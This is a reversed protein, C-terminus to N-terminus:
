SSTTLFFRWIFVEGIRTDAYEELWRARARMVPDNPYLSPEPYREELYECIVTSDPIALEGDILVPIRRVPSVKTFEDDGYFPVIPDIHYPLGETGLVGVGKPCLPILLFRNDDVNSIGNTLRIKCKLQEDL